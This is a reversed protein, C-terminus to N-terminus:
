RSGLIQFVGMRDILVILFPIIAAAFLLLVLNRTWRLRRHRGRESHSVTEPILALVPAGLFYQIDREDSFIFFRPLELILIIVLGFGVAFVTAFLFLLRRNPAVPVMPMSPPDLIQFMPSTSDAIGALKQFYDQKGLLVKYREELREYETRTDSTSGAAAGQDAGPTILSPDNGAGAPLTEMTKSKRALDRRTVDLDTEFRNLDLQMRKLETAEPSSFAISGSSVSAELKALESNIQALQTRAEILKPNRETYEETYGKIKATLEARRIILAAVAPNTTPVGNSTASNVIRQQEAIQRKLESISKELTYERDTLSDIMTGVAQRQTRNVAAEAANRTAMQARLTELDRVPGLEQLRKEVEEIKGKLTTLEGSARQRVSENAREFNSVLDAVLKQATTADPYRFAIRVSEPVEPYGYPKRAVDLKIGKDLLDIAFDLKKADPYLKHRQILGALNGRSKLHAIVSSFSAGDGVPDDPGQPYHTVVILTRSEYIAPLRRIIVYAAIMMVLAMLFLVRKRRWIIEVWEFLRRPRIVM